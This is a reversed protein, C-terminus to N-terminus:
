RGGADGSGATEEGDPAYYPCDPSSGPEHMRLRDGQGMGQGRPSMGAGERMHHGGGRMHSGGPGMAHGRPGHGGMRMLGSEGVARRLERRQETDLRERLGQMTSRMETRLNMMGEHMAARRQLLDNLSELRARGAEDLSLRQALADVDLSPAEAEQAAGWGLAGAALFLAGAVAPFGIRRRRSLM